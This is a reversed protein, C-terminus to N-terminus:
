LVVCKSLVRHQREKLTQPQKERMSIERSLMMKKHKM